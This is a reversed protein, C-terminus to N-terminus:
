EVNRLKELLRNLTVAEEETITFQEESKADIILTSAYLLAIGGNTLTVVTERKDSSSTCRKVLKKTELRDIIRPVNSSKEIMRSGIDKICMQEPHKGKLIRLVNYQEHTIGFQKLEQTMSTKLWWSTYLIHLVCKQVESKFKTSQIAQELKMTSAFTHIYM